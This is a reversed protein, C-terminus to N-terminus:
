KILQFDIDVLICPGSFYQVPLVLHSFNDLASQPPDCHRTFRYLM